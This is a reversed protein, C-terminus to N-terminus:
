PSLGAANGVGRLGRGARRNAWFRGMDDNNDSERLVEGGALEYREGGDTGVGRAVVARRAVGLRTSRARGCGLLGGPRSVRTGGLGRRRTQSAPSLEPADGAPTRRPTWTAGGPGSVPPGLAGKSRNVATLSSVPRGGAVSM